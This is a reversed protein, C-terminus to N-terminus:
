QKLSLIQGVDCDLVECIKAITEMSVFQNKNLRTLTVSSIKAKERLEKKTLDKEILYIWLNTYDPHM